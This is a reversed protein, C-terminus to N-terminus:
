HNVREGDRVGVMAAAAPGGLSLQRTHRRERSSALSVAPVGALGTGMKVCSKRGKGNSKRSERIVGHSLAGPYQENQGTDPYRILHFFNSRCFCFLVLDINSHRTKIDACPVDITKKIKKNIKNANDRTSMSNVSSLLVLCSSTSRYDVVRGVPM